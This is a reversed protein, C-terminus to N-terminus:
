RSFSRRVLQRALDVWPLAMWGLALAFLPRDFRTTLVEALTRVAGGSALTNIATAMFVYLALGAGLFVTLNGPRGGMAGGKEEGTGTEM